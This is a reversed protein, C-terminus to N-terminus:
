FESSPQVLVQQQVQQSEKIGLKKLIEENYRRTNREELAMDNSIQMLSLGADYHLYGFLKDIKSLEPQKSTIGCLEKLFTTGHSKMISETQLRHKKAIKLRQWFNLPKSM